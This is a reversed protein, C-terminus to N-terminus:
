NIKSLVFAEVDTERFVHKRASMTVFPLEGRRKLRDLTRISISLRRCVEDASLLTPM